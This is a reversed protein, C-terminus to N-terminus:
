ANSFLWHQPGESCWLQADAGEGLSLPSGSFHSSRQVNLKKVAPHLILLSHDNPKEKLLVHVRAVHVPSKLCLEGIVSVTNSTDYAPTLEDSLPSFVEMVIRLSAERRYVKDVGFDQRWQLSLWKM